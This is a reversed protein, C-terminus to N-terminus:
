FHEERELNYDSKWKGLYRCRMSLTFLEQKIEEFHDEPLHNVYLEWLKEAMGAKELDEFELFFYIGPYAFDYPMLDMSYLHDMKHFVPQTNKQNIGVSYILAEKM